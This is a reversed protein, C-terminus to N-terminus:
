KSNGSPEDKVDHVTRAATDRLDPGIEEVEGPPQDRKGIKEKAEGILREVKCKIKDLISM